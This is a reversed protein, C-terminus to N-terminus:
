YKPQFEKGWQPRIKIKVAKDYAHNIKVVSNHRHSRFWMTALVIPMLFNIVNCNTCVIQKWEFWNATPIKIISIPKQMPDRQWKFSHTDLHKYNWWNRFSQSKNLYVCMGHRNPLEHKLIDIQEMEVTNANLLSGRCRDDDMGIVSKLNMQINTHHQSAFSQADITYTHTLQNRKLECGFGCIQDGFSNISGIM